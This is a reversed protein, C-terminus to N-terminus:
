SLEFMLLSLCFAFLLRCVINTGCPRCRSVFSFAIGSNLGILLSAATQGLKWGIMNWPVSRNFLFVASGLDEKADAFRKRQWVPWVIDM